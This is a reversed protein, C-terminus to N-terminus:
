GAPSLQRRPSLRRNRMVDTPKAVRRKFNVFMLTWPSVAVRNTVALAEVLAFPPSLARNMRPVLPTHRM